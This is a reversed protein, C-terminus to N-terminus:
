GNVVVAEEGGLVYRFIFVDDLVEAFQNLFLDRGGSRVVLVIAGHDFVYAGDIDEFQVLLGIDISVEIPVDGSECVVGTRWIAFRLVHIALDPEYGQLIDLFALFDSEVVAVGQFM